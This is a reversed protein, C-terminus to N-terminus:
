SSNIPSSRPHQCFFRRCALTWTASTVLRGPLPRSVSLFLGERIVHLAQMFDSSVPFRTYKQERGPMEGVASTGTQPLQPAPPRRIVLCARWFFLNGSIFLVLLLFLTIGNILHHCGPHQPPVANFPITQPSPTPSRLSVKDATESNAPM